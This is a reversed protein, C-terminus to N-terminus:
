FFTTEQDSGAAGGGGADQAHSQRQDTMAYQSELQELWFALAPVEAGKDELLARLRAMDLELLAMMQSIRDQYQFGMYMRDVQAAVMQTEHQFPRAVQELAGVAHRVMGLVQEIASASAATLGPEALVPGLVQECASVLGTVGAIPQALADNIQQSQREAMNIHPGIDSFAQLMESVAAESQARSIALHRGWVPLLGACLALLAEAVPSPSRQEGSAPAIANQM